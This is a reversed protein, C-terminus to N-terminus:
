YSAWERISLFSSEYAGMDVANGQERSNGDLDIAESVSTGQDVAPSLATLHYDGAAYDVFEPTANEISNAGAAEAVGAINITFSGPAFILNYDENLTIPQAVDFARIAGETEWSSEVGLYGRFDFINNTLNFIAGNGPAVCSRQIGIVTCNTMNLTGADEFEVCRDGGVVLCNDMNVTFTGSQLRFQEDITHAPNWIICRSLNVTGSGFGGLSFAGHHGGRNTINSRDFFCNTFNGESFNERLEFARRYSRTFTSNFATMTGARQEILDGQDSTFPAFTDGFGDLTSDEIQIHCNTASAPTWAVGLAYIDDCNMESGNLIHFQSDDFLEFAYRTWSSLQTNDFIVGREGAVIISTLNTSGGSMDITCNTFTAFGDGTSGADMDLIRSQNNSFVCDTADIEITGTDALLFVATQCSDVTSDSLALTNGANLALTPEETVTDTNTLDIGSISVDIAGAAIVHVGDIVPRPSQTSTFVLSKDITLDETYTSSDTIEITEGVAANTIALTLTPQDGPVQILAHSINAIFMFCFMLCFIKMLGRKM